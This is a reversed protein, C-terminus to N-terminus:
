GLYFYIPVRSHLGRVEFDGLSGSPGRSSGDYFSWWLGRVSSFGVAKMYGQLRKAGETMGEAETWENSLRGEEVKEGEEERKEEEVEEVKEGEEVEVEGRESPHAFFNPIDPEREPEPEEVEPAPKKVVEKEEVSEEIEQYVESEERETSEPIEETEEEGSSWQAEEVNPEQAVNEGMEGIQEEGEFLFEGFVQSLTAVSVRGELIVDTDMLMAMTQAQLPIDRNDGEELQFEQEEQEEKESVVPYIWKREMTAGYYSLEQIQTPMEYEEYAEVQRYVYDGSIKTAIKVVKALTVSVGSGRQNYSVGESYFASVTWPAQTLGLAVEETNEMLDMLSAYVKEQVEYSRYGENIILTEGNKLANQQALAIKIATQYLVPVTFEVRGLRPNYEQAHYLKEGTVGELPYFFSHYMSAVANSNYYVASPLVDPLNIMCHNAYVYGTREEYEVKWWEGEVELITFGVGSPLEELIVGGVVDRMNLTTVAFGTAGYLPLEFINQQDLYNLGLSHFSFQSVGQIMPLLYEFDSRWDSLTSMHLLPDERVITESPPPLLSKEWQYFALATAGLSLTFLSLVLLVPHDLVSKKKKSM